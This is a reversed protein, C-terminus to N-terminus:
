HNTSLIIHEVDRLSKIVHQGQQIRLNLFNEGLALAADVYEGEISYLADISALVDLISRVGGKYSKENATVSLKAAEIAERRTALETIGSEVASSLRQIELTAQRKKDLADEKM